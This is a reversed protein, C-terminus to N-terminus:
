LMPPYSVDLSRPGPVGVAEAGTTALRNLLPAMDSLRVCHDVNVHQLASRPMSPFRADRPDQVIAIGGLHKIAWLGATGDDLSGSLVVGIVVHGYVQAASRFLSDIAPRFRNERAGRTLRVGGLEVILDHDPPAVYIRSPRLREFDRANKARLPGSRDLIEGLLGPSRPSVHLVVCIPLPFEPSLGAVLSRLAQIGGASAGVVVIGKERM